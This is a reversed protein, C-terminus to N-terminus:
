RLITTTPLVVATNPGLVRAEIIRKSRPNKVRIVQNRSGPEVSVGRTSLSMTKNKFHLTVFEGKKILQQPRIDSMRILRGATLPRKAVHDLLQEMSGVVGFSQQKIRVKRWTIDKKNILQGAGIHKNPVPMPIIAFAKGRLIINQDENATSNINVVVEFRGTREDLQSQLVRIAEEANKPVLIKLNRDNFNVEIEDNVHNQELAKVVANRIINMPVQKASRSVVVSKRLSDSWNLTSAKVIRRLDKRFLKFKKGLEPADGVIKDKFELDSYFLDSLWIKDSEIFIEKAPKLHLLPSSNKSQSNGFSTVLCSMMITLLLTITTKNQM